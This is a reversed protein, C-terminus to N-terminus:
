HGVNYIHFFLMLITNVLYYKNDAKGDGSCCLHGTSLLDRRWTYDYDCYYYFHNGNTELKNCVM